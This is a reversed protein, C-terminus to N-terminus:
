GVAVFIQDGVPQVALIKRAQGIPPMWFATFRYSDQPVGSISMKSWTEFGVRSGVLIDGNRCFRVFEAYARQTSLLFVDASEVICVTGLDNVTSTKPAQMPSKKMATKSVPLTLVSGNTQSEIVPQIVEQYLYASAGSAIARMDSHYPNISIVEAKVLNVAEDTEPNRLLPMLGEETLIYALGIESAISITGDRSVKAAVPMGSEHGLQQQLKLSPSPGLRWVQVDGNQLGAVLYPEWDSFDITRVGALRISPLSESGILSIRMVQDDLALALETVRRSIPHIRYAVDNVPATPSLQAERLEMNSGVSYLHAQAASDIVTLWRGDPSFFGDMASTETSGSVYAARVKEKDNM